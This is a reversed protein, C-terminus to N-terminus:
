PRLRNAFADPNGYRDQRSFAGLFGRREGLVDSTLQDYDGMYYPNLLADTAHFPSWVRRAARREHWTRGGDLSFACSRGVFFDLPDRRRDYYCAAARGVADVAVGPQYQDTRWDTVGVRAAPSWTQGGDNSRSVLIDAFGYFGTPSELDPVRVRRGDHWALYLRGRAPGSSRDVALSPFELGSRFGGKLAFCDGVCTVRSAVSAPGFTAGDDTSRRARLDRTVFDDFHEWAVFVHGQHGVVVQSGQVAPVDGCVEDLVVPLSWTAGGDTSRVVEIATRFEGPCGTSTGSSDFDTYTVYMKLPDVPSVTFWPKDLFHPSVIEGGVVDIYAKAVAPVPDAFTVGGDSSISVSIATKVSPFDGFLFLSAYAFDQESSCALVPDGSLQNSLDPGPNLFGLDVFSNGGNTSRAVGNFSLGRTGILTEWLSGSDNFGVVANDGCWATTTESQTFGSQQSLVFDAARNSVPHIEVGPLGQEAPTETEPRGGAGRLASLSDGPYFRELRHAIQLLNQAGSSLLRVKEPGLRKELEEIGRLRSRLAKVREEDAGSGIGPAMAIAALLCLGVTKRPSMPKKEEAHISRRPPTSQFASM